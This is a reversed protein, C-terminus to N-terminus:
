AAQEQGALATALPVCPFTALATRRSCNLVTVGLAALPEVLSDFAAIMQPYPSLAGEPHPAHWHTRGDPAPSMDYGLLLIRTAGLHVALNIAQYGSNKGTRLGTPQIELGLPGTNRLVTLGPWAVPQPELAVKLGTFSPAGRHWGWWRADCAYLVDAFPACTYADNIAIVRARGCVADVDAMTLSPGGGILVCTEGRWLWPMM